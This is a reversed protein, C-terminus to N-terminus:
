LTYLVVLMDQRRATSTYIYANWRGIIHIIYTYQEYASLEKYKKTFRCKYHVCFQFIFLLLFRFINSKIISM